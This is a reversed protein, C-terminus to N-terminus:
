SITALDRSYFMEPDGEDLDQVMGSLVYGRSTLFGQMPLNSLNASTFIRHSQCRREFEDFLGTGVRQRRHSAEVYILSVFGRGFFSHNMIGYGLLVEHDFAVLCERRGIASELTVKRSKETRAGSDVQLIHDIDPMVALRIKMPGM